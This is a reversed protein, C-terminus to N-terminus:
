YASIQVPDHYIVVGSTEVDIFLKWIAWVLADMRDPSKKMAGPAYSCMQDELQELGATRIHRVRNQEYLAAIPEARVIKGRSAHVLEVPVRPDVMAITARVMDGGQNAEAVLVDAQHHWFANVARQAWGQPTDKCSYDGLVVGRGDFTQGAAVIGTLDSEDVASIAPDVGIVVRMLDGCADTQAADIMARTWLAGPVDDLVEALLEQRGLRTGEYKRVIEDLFAPALNARNEYTSGRTVATSKAKILERIIPLPKPTTTVVVRPDNGLRLGFMLMDWTEVYGWAALEDCWAADHQPGRLREPEDATYATAIAGNPWTLRRKSPEYHPRNAEPCIALIGSEGEIMVDRADSSTAAVLAIRKYKGSEAWMRVTEAGTRTKGFGRGALVLWIRWDGDPPLQNPRAWFRWDTLLAAQQTPSLSGIVERREAAPLAAVTAALSAGGGLRFLGRRSLNV